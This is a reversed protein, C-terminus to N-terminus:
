HAKDEPSQVRMQDTIWNVEWTKGGDTSFSQEFHATTPTIGSWLYRIFIARGNLTDQCYFEGRGNKFEGVNPPGGM